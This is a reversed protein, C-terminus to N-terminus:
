MAVFDIHEEEETLDYEFQSETDIDRLASSIQYLQRYRQGNNIDIGSDNNARSMLM